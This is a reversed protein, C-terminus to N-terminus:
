RPERRREAERKLFIQIVGDSGDPGFLAEAAGGKIVEIREIADPNLDHLASEDRLRVGDVYVLPSADAGNLRVAQRTAEAAGTSELTAELGADASAPETPPAVDCAIALALVAAGSLAGTALRGQKSTRRGIMILRRELLSPPASLAPVPLPARDASTGVELLLSGYLARHAGRRLVRADCDLEVAARLRRLQWWLVPNWPTLLIAVVGAFLLQPDRASRHEDEHWVAMRLRDADLGLMWRPVVVQSRLVGLVAPGFEASVLVDTGDLHATPWGRARARLQLLGGGLALTLLASIGLWAPLLYPDAAALLSRLRDAGTRARSLWGDAVYSADASDGAEATISAPPAPSRALSAVPVTLAAATALAWVWRCPRGRARLLADVSLAALGLLASVMVAYVMWAGM